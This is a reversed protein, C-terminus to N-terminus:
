SSKQSTLEHIRNLDTHILDPGDPSTAGVHRDWVKEPLTRPPSAM